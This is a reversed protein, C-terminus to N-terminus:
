SRGVRQCYSSSLRRAWLSEDPLWSISSGAIACWRLNLMAAALNEHSDKFFDIIRSEGEPDEALIFDEEFKSKSEQLINEDESIMRMSLVQLAEMATNLFDNNVYASFVYCCTSPDPQIKAQHMREVILEIIDIRGKMYAELLITNYLLLDQQIGDTIAQDLIRLAEDFAENAVLIKIFATYNCTQPVFGDRLMMSIIAAGSKVCRLISCCDIMINYTAGNLPIDRLKMNKFIKIAIHSEKEQVLSQLVTNYISAAPYTNRLYFEKEVKRLYHLLEKLMGEAGFAILLNRISQPSHPVGNKVMDMEIANIRKATDEQSLMSGKEYPANVNGFLSFLLEYTIINLKLKMEKMKTLVRVAREPQDMVNCAVLLANFPHLHPTEVIHDLLDEALDLELIRSCRMSLITMTASRPKLNMDIMARVVKIGDIVGKDYIVARAYGDYTHSFPELGLSHMQQLLQGALNSKRSHACAYIVHSFSWRLVTMLLIKRSDRKLMKFGGSQTEQCDFGSDNRQNDAPCLSGRCGKETELLLGGLCRSTDYMFQKNSSISIDLRSKNFQGKSSKNVVSSGEFALNVMHQLAECASKLDGLRAFCRIFKSLSILTPNYYKTFEKWIEHVASVNNHGFALKLLELYTAESKGILQGEMLDLCLKAYAMSGTRACGNLFVNYMLLCPKTHDSGGLFSLWNFAEELYGAKTLAQIIFTHRRKNMGIKNEEMVRWTELVFLPDPTRACYDLIHDFDNARLIVNQRSLNSLLNSARDREGLHLANIIQEQLSMSTTVKGEFRSHGIDKSNSNSSSNAVTRSLELREAVNKRGKEHFKARCISDVISRIQLRFLM